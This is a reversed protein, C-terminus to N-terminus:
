THMAQRKRAYKFICTCLGCGRFGSSTSVEGKAKSEEVMDTFKEMDQVSPAEFEVIPLFM